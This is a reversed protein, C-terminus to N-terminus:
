ELRRLKEIYYQDDVSIAIAAAQASEM